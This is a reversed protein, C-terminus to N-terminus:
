YSEDEEVEEYLGSDEGEGYLDVEEIEESLYSIPEQLESLSWSMELGLSLLRKYIVTLRLFSIQPLTFDSSKGLIERVADESIELRADALTEIFNERQQGSEIGTVHFDYYIHGGDATAEDSFVELDKLFDEGNLPQSSKPSAGYQMDDIKNEIPADTEVELDDAPEPVEDESVSLSDEDDGEDSELEDASEEYTEYGGSEDDENDESEDEDINEAENEDQDSDEVEKGADDDPSDYDSDEVEDEQLGYDGAPDEAPEDGQVTVNDELDVSCVAGCSKCDVLGFDDTLETQCNPCLPNL